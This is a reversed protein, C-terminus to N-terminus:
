KGSITRVGHSRKQWKSCDTNDGDYGCMGVRACVCVVGSSHGSYGARGGARSPPLIPLCARSECPLKVDCDHFLFMSSFLSLFLCYPSLNILPFFHITQSYSDMWRDM